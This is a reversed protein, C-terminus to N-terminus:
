FGLGGGQDVLILVTDQYLVPSSALTPNLKLDGPIEHRWLFNGEFDMAACVASGFWCYVRKGDTAPTPTAAPYGPEAKFPGLPVAKHWLRKGDSVQYCVVRQDPEKSGQSA